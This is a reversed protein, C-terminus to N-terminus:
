ATDGRAIEAAAARSDEVAAARETGVASEWREVAALLRVIDPRMPHYRCLDRLNTHLVSWVDHIDALGKGFSEATVRILRDAQAPEM